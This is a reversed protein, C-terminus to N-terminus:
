ILSIGDFTFLILFSSCVKWEFWRQKIGHWQKTERYRYLTPWYVLAICKGRIRLPSSGDWDPSNDDWSRFLRALDHVFSITPPNPIDAAMYQICENTLQLTYIRSESASPSLNANVKLNERSTNHSAISEICPDGFMGTTQQNCISSLIDTLQKTHQAFDSILNPLIPPLM